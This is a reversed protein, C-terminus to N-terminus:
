PDGEPIEKYDFDTTSVTKRKPMIHYLQTTHSMFRFRSNHRNNKKTNQQKKKHLQSFYTLLLASVSVCFTRNLLTECM